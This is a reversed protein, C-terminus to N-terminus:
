QLMHEHSHLMDKPLSTSMQSNSTLIHKRLFISSLIHKRLCLLSYRPGQQSFALAGEVMEHVFPESLRVPQPEIKAVAHVTEVKGGHYDLKGLAGGTM